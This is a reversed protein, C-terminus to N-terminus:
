ATKTVHAPEIKTVVALEANDRSTAVFCFELTNFRSIQNRCHFASKNLMRVRSRLFDSVEHGFM